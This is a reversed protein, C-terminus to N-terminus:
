SWATSSTSPGPTTGASSPSMCRSSPTSRPTAGCARATRPVPCGGPRTCWRRSTRIPGCPGPPHRCCWGCGAAAIAAIAALLWVAPFGLWTLAAAGLPAGALLGVCVAVSFWTIAAPARTRGAPVSAAAFGAYALAEGIGAVARCLLVVPVPGAGPLAAAALAPLGGGAVSASRYGRQDVVRGVVPRALTATVSPMAVALGALGYGRHLQGAVYQPLVPVLLGMSLFCIGSGIFV